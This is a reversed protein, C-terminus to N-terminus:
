FEVGARLGFTIPAGSEGYASAANGYAIPIYDTNLANNVYAEAFWGQRARVGLRLNLLVYATQGITNHSDYDFNGIFQADVRGYVNM